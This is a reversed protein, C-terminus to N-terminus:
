IRDLEAARAFTYFIHISGGVIGSGDLDNGDATLAVRDGGSKWESGRGPQWEYDAIKRAGFLSAGPVNRVSPGYKSSLLDALSAVKSEVTSRALKGEPPYDGLLKLVSVYRLTGNTNFELTVKFTDNDLKYGEFALQECATVGDATRSETEGHNCDNQMEAKPFVKLVDARTSKGTLGNFSLSSATQSYAPTAVM